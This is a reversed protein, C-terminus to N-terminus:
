LYRDQIIARHHMLHGAVIYALAQVTFANDSAIGTRAWAATPLNRFFSLTALRVSRFEEILNTWSVENAEAAAVCDDQDFSPLSEQLGRAFWFARYLFVRETDNVHNLVQRISWKEPAYRYLSKEDSIDTLFSATDNLQQQLTEVINDSQVLDIYRFYYPAAENAQIM